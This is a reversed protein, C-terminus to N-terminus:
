KRGHRVEELRDASERLEGVRELIRRAFGELKDAQERVDRAWIGSPPPPITDRERARETKM